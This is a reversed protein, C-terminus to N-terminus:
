VRALDTYYRAAPSAAAVADGMSSCGFLTSRYTSSPYRPLERLLPDLADLNVQVVSRGEATADRLAARLLARLTVSGGRTITVIRSAWLGLAGGPPPLPASVGLWAAARTVCRLPLDSPQYRLIRIRRLPEGDWVLLLGSPTGDPASAIWARHRGTADPWAIPDVPALRVDSLANASLEAVTAADAATAARVTLGNSEALRPVRWSVYHVSAFRALAVLAPFGARRAVLPLAARNRDGILCTIWDVGQADFADRAARLLLFAARGGRAWAAVRFDIIEGVLVTRDPERAQRCLATVTGALRDGELALFTRFAGRLGPLAGFDPRRDLLLVTGSQLPTSLFFETVSPWESPTAERVIM